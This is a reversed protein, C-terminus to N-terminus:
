KLPSIAGSIVVWSGGLLVGYLARVSDLFSGKYVLRIVVWSGGLVGGGGFLLM